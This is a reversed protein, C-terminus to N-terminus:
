TRFQTTYQILQKSLADLEMATQSAVGAVESTSAVQATIENMSEGILASAQSQEESSQAIGELQKQLQTSSDNLTVLAQAASNTSDVTKSVCTASNHIGRVADNTGNQITVVAEAIEKTASTTREALRRVEGAVVAFGRGHEGARASEIAANLALLNTQGAIEEILTVIQSIQRSREGLQVISQANQESEESLNRVVEAVQDVSQCSGQALEGNQIAFQAADKCRMNIERGGALMEELATAIQTAHNRQESVASALQSSTVSVTAAKENITDSATQISRVLKRLSDRLQSVASFLISLEDTHADSPTEVTLNGQTLTRVFDVCSEMRLTLSRSFKMSWAALGLWIVALLCILVTQEHHISAAQKAPITSALATLRTAVHDLTDTPARDKGKLATDAKALDRDTNYGALAAEYQRCLVQHQQSFSDLDSRAQADKIQGSLASIEKQVTEALTHFETSYKKLAEDDKGRILIDKWAQVQKKFTVQIVRIQQAQGIPGEIIVTYRDSVSSCRILLYVSIMGGAFLAAGLLINIIQTIRLSKM